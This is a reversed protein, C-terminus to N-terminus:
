YCQEGDYVRIGTWMVPVSLLRLRYVQCEEVNLRRHHTQGALDPGHTALGVAGGETVPGEPLLDREPGEIWKRKEEPELLQITLPLRSAAM